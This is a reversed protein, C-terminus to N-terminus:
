LRRRRLLQGRDGRIERHRARDRRLGDRVVEGTDTDMVIAQGGRARAQGCGPAAPGDRRREAGLPRPDADPRQRSRARRRDARQRGRFQRRAHGRVDDVRRGGSRTGSREELGAVGQGDIDTRGIVSRATVGGPLRRRDERSTSVGALEMEDLRDALESDVQRAVYLFGRDRKAMEAALEAERDSTLDLVRAFTAATGEPDEVQKPNVAVTAAPVSLALEDGNRDFIAGRQARLTRDRTWQNSAASRLSDGQFTQLLGVKFLVAMLFLLMMVLTFLLRMRPQGAAFRTALASRRARVTRRAHQRPDRTQVARTRGRPPTRTSATVARRRPGPRAATVGVAAAAAAAAAKTRRDRRPPPSGGRTARSPSSSSQPARSSRGGTPARSPRAAGIADVPPRSGDAAHCPPSTPRRHAAACRRPRPTRALPRPAVPAVTTAATAVPPWPRTASTRRASRPRPGSSSPRAAAAANAGASRTPRPRAPAPWCTRAPRDRASRRACAVSRTSPTPAEVEGIVENATGAAALVQALTVSGVELFETGPSPYMGLQASEFTLRGPSRLEARQQRLVDFRERASVVEEELRDIELQREALRTHLVVAALMLVAIMTVLIIVANAATRPRPM